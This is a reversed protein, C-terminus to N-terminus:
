QTSAEIAASLLNSRTKESFTSIAKRFKKAAMLRITNREMPAYKDIDPGYIAGAESACANLEQLAQRVDSSNGSSVLLAQGLEELMSISGTSNVMLLPLIADAAADMNTMHASGSAIGNFIATLFGRLAAQVVTSSPGKKGDSMLETTALAAIAELGRRESGVNLSGRQVDITHLIKRCLDPPLFSLKEPQRFVLNTIFRFFSLSVSPLALAADSILPLVTSLGFFCVEGYDASIDEDLIRSLLSIIDEIDCSLEDISLENMQSAVIDTHLKILKLINSLLIREEDELLISHCSYVIDDALNILARGVDPRVKGFAKACSAVVGEPTQLSRLLTQKTAVGVNDCKAAGRLLYVTAIARDAADASVHRVDAFDNMSKYAPILLREAVVDGLVSTLSRGIDQVATPPLTQYAEAGARLLNHWVQSERIIPYISARAALTSLLLAASEAIDTEFARRSIAELAKVFCCNISLDIFPQGVIEQFSPQPSSTAVPVLYTRCIRCLTNLLSSAVRPSAQECHVGLRNILNTEKEAVQMLVSILSRAHIPPNQYADHANKTHNPYVPPMFQIPISPYEGKAEDALIACTFRILFYLDEQYLHLPMKAHQAQAPTWSFVSETAQLLSQAIAPVTKPLVFRTLIAAVSLRSDDLSTDEFGFDEDVDTHSSNSYVAAAEGSARLSMRIFHYVVREINPCLKHETISSGDDAQLALNAWTELLMDSVDMSFVDEDGDPQALRVAASKMEECTDKTFVELFNDNVSGVSELGHACSIRRWVEAYALRVAGISSSCWKQENIGQMVSTLVNRRVDQTRYSSKSIASIAIIIQMAKALVDSECDNQVAIQSATMVFCMRLLAPMDDVFSAWKSDSFSYIVVVELSDSPSSLGDELLQESHVNPQTYHFDASVVRYIASLVPVARAEFSPSTLSAADMSCLHALTATVARFLRVMHGAPSTFMHRARALIEREVAPASSLSPALFEDILLDILESAAVSAHHPTDPALTSDCLSSFFLDRDPVSEELFSRRALFAAVRLLAVREFPLLTPKSFVLNVLWYRLSHPGYRHSLSLASWTDRAAARLAAAAHFRAVPSSTSEAVALAVPVADPSAALRHLAAEAAPRTSAVQADRCAVEFANVLAPDAVAM